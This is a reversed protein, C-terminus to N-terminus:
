QSRTKRQPALAPILTQLAPFSEPVPDFGAKFLPNCRALRLFALLGGKLIGFRVVAEKGYESCTPRFRCAPPLFPSLCYKYATFTLALVSRM